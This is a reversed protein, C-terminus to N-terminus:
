SRGSPQLSPSVHIRATGFFSSLGLWVMQRWQRTMFRARLSQSVRSHSVTALTRRQADGLATRASPRCGAHACGIRDVTKRNTADARCNMRSSSLRANETFCALSEMFRIPRTFSSLRAQSVTDSGTCSTEGIARVATVTNM